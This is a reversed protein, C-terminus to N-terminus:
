NAGGGGREEPREGKLSVALQYPQPVFCGDRLLVVVSSAERCLRFLEFADVPVVEPGQEGEEQLLASFARAEAEGEFAVVGDVM